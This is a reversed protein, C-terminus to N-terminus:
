DGYTSFGGKPKPPKLYPDLGHPTADIHQGTFPKFRPPPVFEPARPPKPFKPPEPTRVDQGNAPAGFASSRHHHAYDTYGGYGQAVAVGSLSVSAICASIIIKM